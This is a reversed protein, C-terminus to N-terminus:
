NGKYTLFADCFKGLENNKLYNIGIEVNGRWPTEVAERIREKICDPQKTLDILKSNERYREAYKEYDVGNMFDALFKKTVPLRAPNPVGLQHLPKKINPIYDTADGKVIHEILYAKPDECEIWKKHIISYQKVNPNVQLQKFDKDSSIILIPEGAKLALYSIVDDAEAGEVSLVQFMRCKVLEGLLKTFMGHNEDWIAKEKETKKAGEHRQYKYMPYIEKRWSTGGEACLIIKGYQKNFKEVISNFIRDFFGHRFHEFTRMSEEMTVASVIMVPQLDVLIM